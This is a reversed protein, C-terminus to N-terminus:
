IKQIIRRRCMPCCQASQNDSKYWGSLCKIHFMHSCILRFSSDLDTQENLCIACITELRDDENSQDVVPLVEIIMHESTLRTKEFKKGAYNFPYITFSFHDVLRWRCEYFGYRLPQVNKLCMPCSKHYRLAISSLNFEGFGLNIIVLTGYAICHPNECLGTVNLGGTVKEWPKVSNSTDEPTEKDSNSSLNESPVHM